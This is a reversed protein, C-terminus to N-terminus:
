YRCTVKPILLEHHNIDTELVLVTNDNKDLDYYDKYADNIDKSVINGTNIDMVKINYTKSMKYWLKKGDPTQITDSIIPINENHRIRNYMVIALKEGRYKPEVQIGKVQLYKTNDIIVEILITGAIVENDHILYYVLYENINNKFFYYNNTSTLKQENNRNKSIIDLNIGGEHSITIEDIKM